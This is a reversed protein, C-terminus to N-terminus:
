RVRDALVVWTMNHNTRGEIRYSEIEAGYITGDTWVVKGSQSDLNTASVGGPKGPKGHVIVLLFYAIKYYEIELKAGLIIIPDFHGSNITNFVKQIPMFQEWQQTLSASM